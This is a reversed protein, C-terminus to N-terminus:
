MMRVFVRATTYATLGTSTINSAAVNVADLLIVPPPYGIPTTATNSILGNNVTDAILDIGSGLTLGATWAATTNTRTGVVLSGFGVGFLLAEGMQNQQITGVAIGYQFYAISPASGSATSPLVVQLGDQYGAGFGDGPSAPNPTSSLNLILPTGVPIINNPFKNNTEVNMVSYIVKEPRNGQILNPRSM